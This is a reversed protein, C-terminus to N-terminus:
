NLSGQIIPDTSNYNETPTIAIATTESFIIHATGNQDKYILYSKAARTKGKKVKSISCLYQNTSDPRTTLSVIATSTNTNVAKLTTTKNAVNQIDQSNFALNNLKDAGTAYIIGCEVYEYGDPLDFACDYGIRHQDVNDVDDFGYLYVLSDIYSIPTKQPADEYNAIFNADCWISFYITKETSYKVGNLTWYAFKKDGKTDNAVLKVYGYSPVGTINYTNTAETYNYTCEKDNGDASIFLQADRTYTLNYGEEITIVRYKATFITTGPELALTETSTASNNATISGKNGTDTNEWDWSVLKYGQVQTYQPEEPNVVAASSEITYEKITNGFQDKYIVTYKNGQTHKIGIIQVSTISVNEGQIHLESDKSYKKLEEETFTYTLGEKFGGNFDTYFAMDDTWGDVVMKVKDAKGVVVVKAEDYGTLNFNVTLSDSWQSLTAGNSNALVTETTSGGTLAKFNAYLVTNASINFRMSDKTDIIKGGETNSWGTFEYGNAAVATVSINAGDAYKGSQSGSIYGGTTATVTFDYTKDMPVYEVPTKNEINTASLEAIYITGTPSDMVEDSTNNDIFIEVKSVSGTMTTPIFCYKWKGNTAPLSTPKKVINNGQQICIAVNSTQNGPTMYFFGIGKAGSLDVTKGDDITVIKGAYGLDDRQPVNYQIKLVNNGNYNVDNNNPTITIEGHNEYQPDAINNNKNGKVIINDVETETTSSSDSGSSSSDTSSSDDPKSSDTSGVKTITLNEFKGDQVGLYLTHNGKTLTVTVSDNTTTWSSTWKGEPKYVEYDGDLGMKLWSNGGGAYGFSIIYEGDSDVNFTYEKSNWNDSQYKDVSLIAGDSSSGSDPTSSSDPKSSSDDNGGTYISCLKSTNKIGNTSNFLTEGWTTLSSGSADKAIDLSSLESNNGKWSWGLYGVRKETCYSMITGEDVEKNAGHDAAFEGIVVPVNIALANDINSKVVTANAGAVDYMHISFVTNKLTDANFIETGKVFISEPQQGYGEADVMLMNQIGANRLNQIATKYGNAFNDFEDWEGYWENAINVIVCDQNAQLLSKMEIWYDVAKNLSSVDSSDTTDHVELICIVKNSKCWNIINQLESYSTKGWREGDSCVIRVVNAGRAAAGKIAQETEWTSWAHHINVGRMIFENGNKDRITTGDVYFGNKEPKPDTTSSSDATSSSDPKSSSDPISSTDDSGANKTVVIKYLNIYEGSIGAYNIGKTLESGKCTLTIKETKLAGYDWQGDRVGTSTSKVLKKAGDWVCVEPSDQGQAYIDITYTTGSSTDDVNFPIGYVARGGSAGGNLFDGHDADKSCTAGSIKEATVTGNTIAYIETSRPDNFIAKLNVNESAIFTYEASTSVITGSTDEWGLFECYSNAPTATLTVSTGKDIIGGGTVSGWSDNNVSVKVSVANPDYNDFDPLDDLNIAREHNYAKYLTDSNTFKSPPYWEQRWTAFYSWTAGNEFLTDLDPVVGNESLALMKTEKMEPNSLYYNYREKGSYPYSGGQQDSPLEGVNNTYGGNGDPKVTKHSYIDDGVIDVVDDGPYCENRQGNWIWLVNSTDMKTTAVEFMYRYLWKYNEAGIRSWWFWGGTETGDNTGNTVTNSDAYDGTCGTNGAPLPDGLGEHLPRWLVLCGAQSLSELSKGMNWVDDKLKQAWEGAENIEAQTATGEIIHRIKTMASENMWSEGSGGKNGNWYKSYFGGYFEWHNCLAIIGPQGNQESFKGLGWNKMDDLSYCQLDFQMIAPVQNGNSALMNQLNNGYYNYRTQGTIVKKGYNDAMFKMLNSAKLSANPNAPTYDVTPLPTEAATVAQTLPLSSLMTLSLAVSM